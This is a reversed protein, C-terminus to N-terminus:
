RQKGETPLGIRVPLRRFSGISIEAKRVASVNFTDIIQCQVRM